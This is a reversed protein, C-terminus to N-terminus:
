LAEFIKVNDINGAVGTCPSFSFAAFRNPEGICDIFLGGGDWVIQQIGQSCTFTSFTPAAQAKAASLAVCAALAIAITMRRFLATKRMNMEGNHSCVATPSDGRVM